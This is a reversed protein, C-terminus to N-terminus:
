GPLPRNIRRGIVYSLFARIVPLATIKSRTAKFLSSDFAVSNNFENSVKLHQRPGLGEM